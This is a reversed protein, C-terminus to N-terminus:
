RESAARIPCSNATSPLVNPLDTETAAFYGNASREPIALPSNASLLCFFARLWGTSRPFRNIRLFFGQRHVGKSDLQEMDTVDLNKEAPMLRRVSLDTLM